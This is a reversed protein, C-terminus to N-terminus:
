IKFLIWKCTRNEFKLQLPKEQGNLAGVCDIVQMQNGALKETNRTIVRLIKVVKNDCRFRIPTPTGDASFVVVMDVPKAVVKMYNGGNKISYVTGNYVFM